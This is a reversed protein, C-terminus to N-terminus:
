GHALANWTLSGGLIPSKRLVALVEHLLWGTEPGEAVGHTTPRARMTRRRSPNPFYRFLSIKLFNEAGCGPHPPFGRWCQRLRSRCGRERRPRSGGCIS